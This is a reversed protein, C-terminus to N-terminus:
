KLKGCYKCQYQIVVKNNYSTTIEIEVYEHIKCVQQVFM